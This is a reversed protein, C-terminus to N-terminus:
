FSYGLLVSIVSNYMKSEGDKDLASLGLNYRAELSYKGMEFAAGAVLGLDMSAMQDKIDNTDSLISMSVEEEASLLIGISPGLVVSAKNGGVPFTAKALIPIDLYTLNYSYDFPIGLVDMSWKAGKQSYLVEPQVAFMDTFSWTVFGGIALGMDSEVDDTVDDGTFTAFNLGLKIGKGTLGTTAEGEAAAIAPFLFGAAVAIALFKKM